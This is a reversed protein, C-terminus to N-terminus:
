KKIKQDFPKTGRSPTLGLKKAQEYSIHDAQLPPNGHKEVADDWFADADTTIKKAGAQQSFMAAVDQTPVNLTASRGASLEMADPDAPATPVGLSRLSKDIEGRVAFMAEVVQMVHNHAALNEGGAVLAYLSNAPVVVVDHDEGTFVHFHNLDGMHMTRGVKQGASFIAMISSFLSVERSNDYLDGARELVRGRDSLLYVAQAGVQKRLKSLHGSLTVKGTDKQEGVEPPLITQKLGLTREVMDMFDGLPIPKDFIAIAGANRMEDRTRKDTMGTILIMKVDPNRARIKAMLEVGTIGPLKYDSILLDIKHNTAELLAEEGSPAEVIKMEHGLTELTSHILRLIDRQDDVILIRPIAM